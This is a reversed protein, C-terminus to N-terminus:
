RRGGMAALARRAAAAPDAAATIPRGLVLFDAGAALAAAPTMVRRQDDASGAELRIGPCLCLFEKGCAAKVAAAEHGSCVVGALGWDRAERAKDAVIGPLEEETCGAEEPSASTLITIAFLMTASGGKAVGERVGELAAGAMRGGGAHHLTALDAGLLSASRAAGRVTNPIDHFKLDLFVKFGMRKLERVVAPGEATFLELGVKMWPAVGRLRAALALAEKARPFDLAPILGATM